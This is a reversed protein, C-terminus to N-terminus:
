AHTQRVGAVVEITREPAAPEVPIPGVPKRRDRALDALSHEDLLRSFYGLADTALELSQEGSLEVALRVPDGGRRQRVPLTVYVRQNDAVPPVPRPTDWHLPRVSGNRGVLNLTMGVFEMKEAAECLDAWWDEFRRAVRLKLQVDEFHRRYRGRQRRIMANRRVARIIDGVKLSGVWHFLLLLMVTLNALVALSSWGQTLLLMMGLATLGLTVGYILLVSRRHDIGRSILRHHIHGREANFVSRRELVGRRIFTLVADVIPIGLAVAPLAIAAFAETTAASLATTSALVFGLFMSGCDGMFISAPNFNFALFAALAGLLALMLVALAAQGSALTIILLVAAAIAAIGAALGDLGDMFNLGVTVGVIWLVTLPYGWAGLELTWGVGLELRTVCGGAACVGSAAALLVLCKLKPSVGRIDDIMGLVFVGAAAAIMVVLAPRIAGIGRIIVPLAVGVTGAALAVGGMRPIPRDHVKRAAPMDLAGLVKAARATLPVAILSVAAACVFVLVGAIM